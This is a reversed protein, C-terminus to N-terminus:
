KRVFLALFEKRTQELEVPSDIIRSMSFGLEEMGLKIREVIKKLVSSKRIDDNGAEFQPKILAIIRGDPKLQQVVAPMVKLLSIFSVDLTALDVLEPLSELYRVNIGEMVVVRSDTRIKEHVQGHGVDVGYVRAAGHQLLCDTFGGTSLGSDLVVLDKVDVGFAALAAELKFGARSVYKPPTADLEIHADELVWSGPKKVIVQNVRVKGEQILGQIHTRSLEPKITAVKQDLRMKKIM